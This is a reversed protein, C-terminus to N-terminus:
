PLAHLKEKFAPNFHKVPLKKNPLSIIKGSNWKVKM